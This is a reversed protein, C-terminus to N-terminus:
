NTRINIILLKVSMIYGQFYEGVAPERLTSGSYNKFQYETAGWEPLCSVVTGTSSVTNYFDIIQKADSPSILEWTAEFNRYQSYIPHANGDIGYSTREVWKGTTPQLTWNVDNTAYSGSLGTSM